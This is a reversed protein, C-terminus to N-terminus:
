RISRPPFETNKPAASLRGTSCCLAYAEARFFAAIAEFGDSSHLFNSRV